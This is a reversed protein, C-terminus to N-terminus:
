IHTYVIHHFMFLFSSHESAYLLPSNHTLPDKTIGYTHIACPYVSISNEPPKILVYNEGKLFFFFFCRNLSNSLEHVSIAFSNHLECTINRTATNRLFDRHSNPDHHSSIVLSRNGIGFMTRQYMPTTNPTPPVFRRRSRLVRRRKTDVRVALM